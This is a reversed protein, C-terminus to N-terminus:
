VFSVFIQQPLIFYLFIIQVIIKKRIYRIGVTQFVTNRYGRVDLWVRPSSTRPKVCVHSQHGHNNFLIGAVM